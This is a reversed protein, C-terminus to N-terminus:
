LTMWRLYCINVFHLFFCISVRAFYSTFLFFLSKLIGLWFQVNGDIRQIIKHISAQRGQWAISDWKTQGLITNLRNKNFSFRLLFDYDYNWYSEVNSKLVFWWSLIRKRYTFWFPFYPIFEGFFIHISCAYVCMPLACYCLCHRLAM